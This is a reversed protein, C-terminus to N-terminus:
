STSVNCYLRIIFLIINVNNNYYLIIVYVCPGKCLAYLLHNEMYFYFNNANYICSALRMIIIFYPLFTHLCLLFCFYVSVCMFHLFFVNDREKNHVTHYMMTTQICLLMFCEMTTSSVITM